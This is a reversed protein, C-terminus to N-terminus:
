GPEFRRGGPHSGPPRMGRTRRANLPRALGARHSKGDGDASLKLCKEGSQKSALPPTRRSTIRPDAHGLLESVTELRVDKNLLYSGFTRRLRHPTLREIGAREGVRRVVREVTQQRMRGGPVTEHIRGERDRWHRVNTTCLFYGNPRYCGRSQVYAIWNKIRPVLEPAIPVERIGNETKSDSVHITREILDVDHMRLALAEGLRLGSWRLLWVLIEELESVPMELLTDDEGKRLWDNPRQKFKPRELALMPNTVPRGEDDVLLGHDSLFRYLSSLVGHVAKLTQARPERGNRAQFHETWHVLFGFDLEHTSLSAPPRDGAWAAFERLIPRYQKLTSEARGRRSLYSLFADVAEPVTAPKLPQVSV